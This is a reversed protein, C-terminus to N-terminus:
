KTKQNREKVIRWLIWRSSEDINPDVKGKLPFFYQTWMFTLNQFKPFKWMCLSNFFDPQDLLWLPFLVEIDRFTYFTDCYLKWKFLCFPVRHKELLFSNHWLLQLQCWFNASYHDWLHPNDSNLAKIQCSIYVTFVKSVAIGKVRSYESIVDNISYM